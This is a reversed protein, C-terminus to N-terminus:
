SLWPKGGGSHQKEECSLFGYTGNSEQVPLAIQLLINLLLRWFLTNFLDVLNCDIQEAAVSVVSIGRSCSLASNLTDLVWTQDASDLEQLGVIECDQWWLRSM